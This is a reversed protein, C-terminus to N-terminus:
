SYDLRSYLQATMHGVPGLPLNERNIEEDINQFVDIFFRELWRFLGMNVYTLGSWFGTQYIVFTQM